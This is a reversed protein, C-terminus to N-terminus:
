TSQRGVEGEVKAKNVGPKFRPKQVANLLYGLFREKLQDIKSYRSILGRM